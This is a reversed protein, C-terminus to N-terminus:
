GSKRKKWIKKKNIFIKLEWEFIKFYKIFRGILCHQPTHAHIAAIHRLYKKKENATCVRCPSFPFRSIVSTIYSGPKQIRDAFFPFVNIFTIVLFFFPFRCCYVPPGNYLLSPLARGSAEPHQLYRWHLLFFRWFKNKEETNTYIYISYRM